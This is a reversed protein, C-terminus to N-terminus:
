SAKDGRYDFLDNPSVNLAACIAAIHEPRIIKRGCLMNNFEQVEFGAARAVASQKLGKEEIIKYIRDTVSM